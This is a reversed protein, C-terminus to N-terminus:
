ADAEVRERHAGWHAWLATEKQGTHEGTSDGPRSIRRARGGGAVGAGERVKEQTPRRGLASRRVVQSSEFNEVTRGRQRALRLTAADLSRAQRCSGCQRFRLFPAECFDGTQQRAWCVDRSPFLQEKSQPRRCTVVPESVHLTVNWCQPKMSRAMVRRAGWGTVQSRSWKNRYSSVRSSGSSKPDQCPTRECLCSPAPPDSGRDAWQEKNRVWM